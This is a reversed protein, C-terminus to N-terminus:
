NKVIVYVTTVTLDFGHDDVRSQLVRKLAEQVIDLEAMTWNPGEPKIKPTGCHMLAMKTPDMNSVLGVRYDIDVRPDVSPVILPTWDLSGLEACTLAWETCVQRLVQMYAPTLEGFQDESDDLPLTVGADRARFIGIGRYQLEVKVDSAAGFIDALPFAAM